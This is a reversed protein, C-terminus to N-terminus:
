SRNSGVASNYARYTTAAVGDPAARLTVGFIEFLIISKVLARRFMPQLATNEAFSVNELTM